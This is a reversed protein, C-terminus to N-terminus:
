DVTIVVLQNSSYLLTCNDGPAGAVSAVVPVSVSGGDLFVANVQSSGNVTDVVGRHMSM